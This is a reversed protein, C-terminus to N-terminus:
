RAPQTGALARLRAKARALLPGVSNEAVGIRQAITRYSEGDLYFWKLLQGAKDPLRSMLAATDTPSSPQAPDVGSKEEPLSGGHGEVHGFAESYRRQTLRRIVVRRVIVALYTALSSRGRFSRLAAMQRDLLTAFTDACLDDEDDRTLRAAHAHSTHRIVQLVLPSYRDVFDRWAKNSGSLLEQVLRRDTESLPM